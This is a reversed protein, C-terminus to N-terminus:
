VKEFVNKKEKELKLLISVSTRPRNEYFKYEWALCVNCQLKKKHIYNYLCQHQCIESFNPNNIDNYRM